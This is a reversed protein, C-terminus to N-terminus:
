GVSEVGGAMDLVKSQGQAEKELSPELSPAELDFSWLQVSNYVASM